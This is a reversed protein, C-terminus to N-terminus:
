LPDRYYHQVTIIDWIKGVDYKMEYTRYQSIFDDEPKIKRSKHKIRYTHYSGTIKRHQFAFEDLETTHKQEWSKWEM